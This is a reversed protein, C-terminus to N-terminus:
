GWGQNELMNRWRREMRGGRRIASRHTPAVRAAQPDPPPFESRPPGNVSPAAMRTIGSATKELEPRGPPGNEGSSVVSVTVFTPVSAAVHVAAGEFSQIVTDTGPPVSSGPSLVSVRAEM